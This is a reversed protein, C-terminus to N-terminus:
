DKIELKLKLRYLDELWLKLDDSKIKKFDDIIKENPNPFKPYVCQTNSGCGQMLFTLM